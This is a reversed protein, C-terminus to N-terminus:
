KAEPSPYAKLCESLCRAYTAPVPDFSTIKWMKMMDRGMDTKHASQLGDRVHAIAEESVAGPRYAIVAPPFDQSQAVIKLRDFAGPKLDKYFELGISDVLVAQSKGQCLDDLATEVNAPRVVHGFFQKSGCAGDDQCHREVYVLCHERTRKPIALDKGKLDAFSGADCDKRVLVYACVSRQSNIAVMLPRLEPHKKQIWAFEHGHFVALQLKGDSLQRAVAFADGGAVLAGNLGTTERMITSFPETVLQVLATPVDHFFTQVMGIRVPASGAQADPAPGVTLVLLFLLGPFAWPSRRM